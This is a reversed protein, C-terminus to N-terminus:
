IILYFSSKGQENMFCIFHRRATRRASKGTRGVERGTPSRWRGLERGLETKKKPRQAYSDLFPLRSAFVSFAPVLFHSWNKRKKSILHSWNQRRTPPLLVVIGPSRSYYQLLMLTTDPRAALCDVVNSIYRILNLNHKTLFFRISSSTAKECLLTYNKCCV